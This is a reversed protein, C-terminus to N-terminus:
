RFKSEQEMDSFSDEYYAALLCKKYRLVETSIRYNQINLFLHIKLLIHM